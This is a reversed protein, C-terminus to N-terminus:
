SKPFKIDKEPPVRPDKYPDTILTKDQVAKKCADLCSVGAFGFKYGVENNYEDTWRDLPDQYYDYVEHCLMLKRSRNLGYERVMVCSLMCHKLANLKTLRDNDNPYEKKALDDIVEGLNVFKDAAWVGGLTKAICCYEKFQLWPRPPTWWLGLHDVNQIGNNRAFCFLNIGGTEGIPDRSPWRGTVPDYMRYGYYYWGIEPDLYKSSFRHTFGSASPGATAITKGFGDYAYRASLVGTSANVYETINGNADAASAAAQGSRIEALLGGVGGAGQFTGSLDLGWLYHTVPTGTIVDHEHLLSWGDYFYRLDSTPLWLDSTSNYVAVQKRIRRSRSDYTNTIVTNANSATVLRNEGDWTLVWGSGTTLMNGDDDYSPSAANVATYQNLMNSVYDTQVSNEVAQIRNGIPDYSYTASSTSPSGLPSFLATELESRVNYTFSNTAPQFGATGTTDLGQTRRGLADNTYDFRSVLNTGFTNVVSAILNRDPEYDVTRAFGGMTYGTLLRSNPVYAYTAVNTVTAVVSTIAAFRGTADYSYDLSMGGLTQFGSNRGLADTSRTLTDTVLGQWTETTLRLSAPDYAYTNTVVGLAASTLQRGMRDYTNVVDPTADSYDVDTLSGTVPDYDYTTTVGRAWTRTALQGAPTYTYTVGKNAADLKQTLLGTAPDYAWITKDMQSKLNSIQSLSSIENTGRYTYLATMRGQNDYEYAVPYTAGWTALVRGEPDYATHTSQNLADITEVRRGLEDYVYSTRNTAGDEIYDVQGLANYHTTSTLTRPGSTSTSGVPRRLADYTTTTVEGVPSTSQLNLGSVAVTVSDLNSDPTNTVNWVLQNPADTYTRRITQNGRLDISVSESTLKGTATAPAASGLGSLRTRSTGTTVPVASSENPYTWSTSERWYDGGIQVVTNTQGSVRDTALDLVGNGNLDLGSLVPEGFADYTYLTAASVPTSVANLEHFTQSSAVRGDADYTTVTALIGGGFAPQESRIFRGLFDTTTKTWALSNLGLPGTFTQTWQSGDPNVGYQYTSQVVGNRSTTKPRGDIFSAVVNTLAASTGYNAITSRTRAAEDHLMATEVGASDIQLIPRGARDYQTSTTLALAGGTTTRSLLNGVNDYTNSVVLDPQAPWTVGGASGADVGKLTESLLLKNRDYLRNVSRGDMTKTVNPSGCGCHPENTVSLGNAYTTGVQVGFAAYQRTSWDVLASGGPTVIESREEIVNRLADYTTVSRFSKFPVGAPQAATGTVTTQRLQTGSGTTWTGLTNNAGPTYTGTQYTHSTILGDRDVSSKPLGDLTGGEHTTTVTRPNAPDGFEASPNAARETVVVEAGEPDPYYANWTRSVLVGGLTRSTTRPRYTKISAADLPSVPSYDYTTTDVLAPDPEGHTLIDHTDHWGTM